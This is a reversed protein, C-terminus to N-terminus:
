PTHLTNYNNSVAVTLSYSQYGLSKIMVVQTLLVLNQRDISINHISGINKPIETKEVVTKTFAVQNIPIYLRM